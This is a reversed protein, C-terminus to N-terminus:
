KHKKDILNLFQNQLEIDKEFVGSFHNTFLQADLTGSKERDICYHAAKIFVGLGKPNLWKDIAQAIQITLNEQLQLRHTFVNIIKILAGIGALKRLPLYAINIEGIIPLLHHECFSIFKISPVVVMDMEEKCAITPSKIISQFDTKYGKFVKKYRRLTRAPTEQLGKRNADEGLWKLLTKIADEAEKDSVQM